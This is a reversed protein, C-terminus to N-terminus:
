HCKLLNYGPPGMGYLEEDEKFASIRSSLISEADGLTALKFQIM